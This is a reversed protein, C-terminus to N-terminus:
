WSGGGGGGFGGGSSGGGGFGSSGSGSSSPPTAALARGMTDLSRGVNQVLNSPQFAGGDFNGNYWTPPVTYIGAFAQAWRDAVGLVIALPLFKEFTTSTRGGLRELRDGEVRSLFEKFGMIQEYAERGKRTRQPMANAALAVIVGSLMIAGVGLPSLAVHALFGGVAIAGGLILWGNRTTDPRGNFLGADSSLTEYLYSRIIPLHRYFKERLDSIRMDDGSAFLGAMLEREHPKLSQGSPEPNQRRLRYDTNSFFLLTTTELEEITLWGRIALDVITSTVDDLDAREDVVTGVEAPTLGPPPEYRVAIADSVRPDRGWRRWTGVVLVLTGLPLLLWQIGYDLLRWLAEQLWSPERVVGKPFGVVITMGERERLRRTAVVDFSAQDRRTTCATERSGAGGTYCTADLKATATSAPLAVHAVARDIPVPWETGTANWYLEDHDSFFTVAREVHYRIQYDRVGTVTQTPDGIRVRLYGGAETTKVGPAGGHGDTVGDVHVHIHFDAAGPREYAIPLERFIGHRSAGEFDWRIQEEVGLTGDARVTLEVDFDRIREALAPAAVVLALTFALAAAGRV